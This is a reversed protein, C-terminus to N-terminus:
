GRARKQQKANMVYRIVSAVADYHKPLIVDGPNLSKYLSQALPKNEVTPVKHRAAERKIFAATKGTGKFLVEPAMMKHPVWLLGVAYHTPNTVVVTAEPIKPRVTEIRGLEEHFARQKRIVEPSKELEKHEEKVDQKSMFLKKFWAYWQYGYDVVAFVLALIFIGILMKKLLWLLQSLFAAPSRGLCGIVQPVSSWLLYFFLAFSVVLKLFGKGFEVFSAASFLRKFGKLISVNEWKMKINQPTLRVGKQLWAAGLVAVSIMLAFFGLVGQFCTSVYLFVRQALQHPTHAYATGVEIWVIGANFIKKCLAEGGFLFFLLLSTLSLLHQFDKAQPVNGKKRAQELRHPTPKETKEATEKKDEAM